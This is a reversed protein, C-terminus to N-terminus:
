NASSGRLFFFNKLFPPIRSWYSPTAERIPPPAPTDWTSFWLLDFPPIGPAFARDEHRIIKYKQACTHLDPVM